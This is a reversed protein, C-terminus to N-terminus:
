TKQIGLLDRLIAGVNVWDSKDGSSSHKYYANLVVISPPNGGEDIAYMRVQTGKGKGFSYLPVEVGSHKKVYAKDYLRWGARRTGRYKGPTRTFEALAGM